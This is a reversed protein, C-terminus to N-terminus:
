KLNIGFLNPQSATPTPISSLIMLRSSDPWPFVFSNIFSGAYIIAQNTGDFEVVSVKGDTILVLHASDPLWTYNIAQPLDYQKNDVLDYVKFLFSREDATYMFKTEDPAWKLVAAASAIKQAKLNKIALVRVEDRAKQDEEWSRLTVGLTPTSDRLDSLATTSDASIIYNREPEALSVLLSKSDPSFKLKAKAFDLEPSSPLLQRLGSSRNFSIPQQSAMTFVWVGGKQKLTGSQTAIPVTFALKAGDPSLVPDVAGNYTLPYITPIAPFLVVKVESILGEKVIIKKEWGIFGDKIIKVEYSKPPLSSITTNTASTLHGDIFIAAGEPQSTVSIIGTGSVIKGKQSSGLRYGKALLIALSAVAAIVLFTIITILFRKSVQIDYM